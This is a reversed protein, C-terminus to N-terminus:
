HFLILHLHLHFVLMKIKAIYNYLNLFFSQYILAKISLFKIIVNSFKLYKNIPQNIPANLIYPNILIYKSIKELRYFGHKISCIGSVSFIVITDKCQWCNITTYSLLFHQHIGIPLPIHSLIVFTHTRIGEGAGFKPGKAWRYLRMRM